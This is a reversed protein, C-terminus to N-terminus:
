RKNEKTINNNFYDYIIIDNSLSIRESAEKKNKEIYDSDLAVDKLTIYKGKSDNYYVYNTLFSGNPFVVINDNLEFIDNGLAYKNYFGLMNGLTPMVDYMGMATNIEQAYNKQFEEDKSWIILPVNRNLEYWYYDIDIYNPDEKSIIDDNQYDYNYLKSWELKAIRADHDGYIVIITNELLGRKDLEDIFLGIQKDAYHSSKFYNGLKTGELYPYNIGNVTLSVDYDGYYEIADFPTHNTLTILTGYYNQYRKAIQEIYDVSQMFFSEDSLGFGIKEDETIIYSNKEYFHEYGLNKHMINRNWFDGTNAHMSFTYYGMNKLLQYSSKYNRDAYNIFVTGNNIPLLSTALTFETDSSTGFSVQSYFNNFFLGEHALKNLNPTVEKGNFEMEMVATQMSEAHIAIVNKGAFINTYQNTYNQVNPKENYYDTIKKNAKDSGFLSAMTPEVSKIIDTIQYLYVGFKSVSYERNWQTYLRGYDVLNLTFILFVFSILAWKYLINASKKNTKQPHMGKKNLIYDIVILFIPYWFLLFFDIKLLDGVVNAGGTEKNTLAFSIFTISIFSDYYNYYVINAICIITSLIAAVYLYIHRSKKNLLFYISAFLLTILLDAFLPGLSYAKGITFGRLIIGNIVAGAIYCCLFINNKIFAKTKELFDKIEQNIKKLKVKINDMM